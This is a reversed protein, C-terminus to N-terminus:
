EYLWGEKQNYFDSEVPPVNLSCRLLNNVDVSLYIMTTQSSGHGLIESIVPLTTGNQMMNTALSHRLCHVGHHRGKYDIGAQYIYNSVVTSFTSTTIPRYPHIATLFVTKLESKPRANIIYDIIAEGVDLLLPLDIDRKTKYQELCIMNKDRDINSFQLTRIDSARLGLRSALLLMAYNRKGIASTREVVSEIKNIEEPTYFSPIKEGRHPKIIPFVVSLDREKYKEEYLYNLFRRIPTYIHTQTPAVRDIFTLLVSESLTDIRVKNSNMIVSFYSLAAKYQYITREAPRIEIQFKEFFKNALEGISGPMPYTRSKKKPSYPERNLVRNLFYITRKFTKITYDALTKKSIVYQIFAEGISENYSPLDRENMFLILERLKGKYRKITGESFEYEKFSSYCLELLTELLLQNKKM